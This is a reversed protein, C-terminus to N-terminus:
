RPVIGAKPDTSVKGAKPDCCVQNDVSKVGPISLCIEGIKRREEENAVRGDITAKGDSFVVDISYSEFKAAHLAEAIAEAIRQNETAVFSVQLVEGEDSESNRDGPSDISQAILEENVVDRRAQDVTRTSIDNPKRIIGSGIIAIGAGLFGSVVVAVAVTVFRLSFGASLSKEGAPPLDRQNSDSSNNRGVM